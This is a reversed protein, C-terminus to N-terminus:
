QNAEFYAKDAEPGLGFVGNQEILKQITPDNRFWQKAKPSDEPLGNAAKWHMLFRNARRWKGEPAERVFQIAFLRYGKNTTFLGDATVQKGCFDILEWSAGTFPTFNKVALHLVGDGDLLGLQRTGNGCNDPCDGTLECLVDVVKADFRVAEEGPLGWEQAAKAPGFALLVLALAALGFSRKM